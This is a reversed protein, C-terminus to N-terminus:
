LSPFSRQPSKGRMIPKILTPPNVNPEIHIPSESLSLLDSKEEVFLDQNSKVERGLQHHIFGDIEIKNALTDDPKRYFLSDRVAEAAKRGSQRNVIDVIRQTQFDLPNSAPFRQTKLVIMSYSSINTDAAQFSEYANQNNDFASADIKFFMSVATSATLTQWVKTVTPTIGYATNSGISTTTGIGTGTIHLFVWYYGKTVLLSWFANNGWQNLLNSGFTNYSIASSATPFLWDNGATLSQTVSYVAISADAPSLAGLTTATPDWLDFEYECEVNYTYTGGPPLDIVAVFIGQYAEDPTHGAININRGTNEVHGMIKGSTIHGPATWTKQNRNFSFREKSKSNAIAHLTAVPPQGLLLSPDDEWFCILGGTATSAQDMTITVKLRRCYFREFLSACAGLRPAGLQAPNIGLGFKYLGTPDTSVVQNGSVILEKGSFSV